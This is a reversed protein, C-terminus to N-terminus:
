HFNIIKESSEIQTIPVIEHGNSQKRCPSALIGIGLGTYHVQKAKKFWDVDQTM